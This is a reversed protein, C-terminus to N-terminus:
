DAHLQLREKLEEIRRETMSARESIEIIPYLTGGEVESAVFAANKDRFAIWARQAARLLERREPDLQALLQKYVRNLEDDVEAYRRNVCDRMEATTVAGQCAKESVWGTGLADWSWMLFVAALLRGYIKM